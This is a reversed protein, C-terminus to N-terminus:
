EHILKVNDLSVVGEEKSAPLIARFVVQFRTYGINQMENVQSTLNFYIKNWSNKVNVGREYRTLPSQITSFGRLGVEIVVETKYNLEIFVSQFNSPFDSYVLDSAVEVLPHAKTLHIKGYNGELGGDTAIEITTESDGDLDDKFITGLEFDDVIAFKTVADYSTQPLVTDVIGEKLDRMEEHFNYFPYIEPESSVGNQRIGPFIKIEQNGKTLIPVVAPLTYAGVSQGGVFLWAETIKESASGQDAVNTVLEFKNLYLFAPVEEKSTDCASLLLLNALGVLLCLKRLM